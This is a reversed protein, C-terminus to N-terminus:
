AIGLYTGASASRAWGPAPEHSLLPSCKVASPQRHERIRDVACQPCRRCLRVGKNARKSYKEDDTQDYSGRPCGKEYLNRIVDAGPAGLCKVLQHHAPDVSVM